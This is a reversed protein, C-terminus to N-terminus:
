GVELLDTSQIWRFMASSIQAIMQKVNIMTADKNAHFTLVLIFRRIM